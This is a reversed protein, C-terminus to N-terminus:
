AVAKCLVQSIREMARCLKEVEGSPLSGGYRVPPFVTYLFCGSLPVMSIEYRGDMQRIEVQEMDSESLISILEADQNLHDTLVLDKSATGLGKTTAKKQEFKAKGKVLVGEYAMQIPTYGARASDMAVEGTLKLSYTGGFLSKRPKNTLLVRQLQGPPATYAVGNSVEAQEGLHSSFSSSLGRIFQMAYGDIKLKPKSHIINLNM